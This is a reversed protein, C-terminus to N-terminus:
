QDAQNLFFFIKAKKQGPLGQSIVQGFSFDESFLFCVLSLLNRNRSALIPCKVATYESLGVHVSM